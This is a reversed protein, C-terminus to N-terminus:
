SSLGHYRCGLSLALADDMLIAVQAGEGITFGCNEGFPRSTRRHDVTETNDLRKLGEENALAGMNGFGEIIEPTIACESSAVVAVRTRGAQIDNM